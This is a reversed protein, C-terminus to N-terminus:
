RFIKRYIKLAEKHSLRRWLKNTLAWVEKEPMEPNLYHIVEHMYVWAIPKRTSKLDLQINWGLTTGMADPMYGFKLSYGKAKLIDQVNTM